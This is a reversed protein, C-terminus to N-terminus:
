RCHNLLLHRFLVLLKKLRSFQWAAWIHRYLNRHAIPHKAQQLVQPLLRLRFQFWFFLFDQQRELSFLCFTEPINALGLALGALLADILQHLPFFSRFLGFSKFNIHALRLNTKYLHFHSKEQTKLRWCVASSCAASQTRKFLNTKNLVLLFRQLM